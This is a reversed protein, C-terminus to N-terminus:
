LIMFMRRECMNGGNVGVVSGKRSRESYALGLGAEPGQRESNRGAVALKEETNELKSRM